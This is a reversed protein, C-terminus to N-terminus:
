KQQNINIYEFMDRAEDMTLSEISKNYRLKTAENLNIQLAKCKATIVSKLAPTIKSGGKPVAVGDDGLDGSLMEEVCIVTIALAKRLARGYSKTEAIAAPHKYFNSSLDQECCAVGGFVRVQPSFKINGFGIPNDLKWDIQLEYNVTVSKNEGHTVIVHTAKSSIIDGLLLSTLRALGHVRPYGDILEEKQFLGMVYDNWEPSAYKVGIAGELTQSDEDELNEMAFSMDEDTRKNYWEMLKSRLDGKKMAAVAAEDEGFKILETRMDDVTTPIM